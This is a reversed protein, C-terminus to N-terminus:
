GLKDVVFTSFHTVETKVCERCHHKLNVGQPPRSCTCMHIYLYLFYETGTNKFCMKKLKRVFMDAKNHIM